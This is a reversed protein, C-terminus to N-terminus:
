LSELAKEESYNKWLVLYYLGPLQNEAVRSYVMNDIISEAKYKKNDGAEFERKPEPLVYVNHLVHGNNQNM